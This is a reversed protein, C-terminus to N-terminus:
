KGVKEAKALAERATVQDVTGVGKAIDELAWKMIEVQKRLTAIERVCANLDNQLSPENGAELIKVAEDITEERFVRVMPGGGTTEHHCEMLLENVKELDEKTIFYGNTHPEYDKCWGKLIDQCDDIEKYCKILM